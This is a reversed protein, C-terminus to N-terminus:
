KVSDGSMYINKPKTPKIKSGVGMNTSGTVTSNSGAGGTMGNNWGGDAVTPAGPSSGVSFGHQAMYKNLGSHSMGKSAEGLDTQQGGNVHPPSESAIKKPPMYPKAM